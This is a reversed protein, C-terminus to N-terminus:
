VEPGGALAGKLNTLMFHILSESGKLCAVAFLEFDLTALATMM